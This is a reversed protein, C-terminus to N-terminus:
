MEAKERTELVTELVTGWEDWGKATRTSVKSTGVLDKISKEHGRLSYWTVPFRITAGLGKQTEM